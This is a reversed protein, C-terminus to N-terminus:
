NSIVFALKLLSCCFVCISYMRMQLCHIISRRQFGLVRTEGVRERFTPSRARVFAARTGTRGQKQQHRPRHLQASGPASTLLFRSFGRSEASRSPAGVRDDPRNTGAAASRRVATIRRRSVFVGEAHLRGQTDVSAALEPWPVVGYM